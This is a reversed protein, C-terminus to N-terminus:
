SLEEPFHQQLHALLYDRAPGDLRQLAERGSREKWTDGDKYHFAHYIAHGGHKGPLGKITDIGLLGEALCRPCTAAMSTCDGAHMGSELEQVMWTLQYEIHHDLASPEEEYWTAPDLRKIIKERAEAVPSPHESPQDQQTLALHADFVMDELLDIRLKLRLLEVEHPELQVKTALPNPTYTLKM